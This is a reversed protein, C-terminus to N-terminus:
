FDSNESPQRGEVQSKEEWGKGGTRLRGPRGGSGALPVLAMGRFLLCGDLQVLSVIAVSLATSGPLVAVPGLLGPGGSDGLVGDRGPLGPWFDTHSIKKKKVAAVGM